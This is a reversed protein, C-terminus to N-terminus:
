RIVGEPGRSESLRMTEPLLNLHSSAPSSVGGVVVVVVVIVLRRQLRRECGIRIKQWDEAGGGVENPNILDTFTLTTIRVARKIIDDPLSFALAERESCSTECGTLLQTAM